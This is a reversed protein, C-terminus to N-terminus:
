QKIDFPELPEIVSSWISDTPGDAVLNKLTNEAIGVNNMALFVEQRRQELQTAAEVVSIPALTGVEVQRKTNNLFTEALNVSERRVGENKIALSLDWYAQQVQLIIQIVRARFQADNLDLQKKTVKINRRAQDIGFNKFMPQTLRFQMGPAYGTVLNSANSVQRQNNFNASVLSGWREFNKSAGFNYTLTDSNITDGGAGTFRAINPNISKNYLITSTTM